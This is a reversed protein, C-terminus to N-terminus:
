SMAERKVDFLAIKPWCFCPGYSRPRGCGCHGDWDRTSIPAPPNEARVIDPLQTGCFPCHTPAPAPALHPFGSDDTVFSGAKGVHAWSYREHYHESHTPIYWSVTWLDPNEAGEASDPFDIAVFPFLASKSGECCGPLLVVHKYTGEHGCGDVEVICDYDCEPCDTMEEERTLKM